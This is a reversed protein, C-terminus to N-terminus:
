RKPKIELLMANYIINSVLEQRTSQYGLKNLISHIESIPHLYASTTRSSGSMREGVSKLFRFWATSPAFTIYARERARGLTHELLAPLDALPYHILVDMSILIDYNGKESVLDSVEFALNDRGRNRASAMEIMKTSIDIGKVIAGQEALIEALFGAGCGADIIRKGAVPGIWDLLCRHIAQRGEILKRQAFNKSEGKSISAWRQFADGDFYNRVQEQQTWYSNLENAM